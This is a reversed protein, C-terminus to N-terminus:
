FFQQCESSSNSMLMPSPKPLIAEFFLFPSFPEPLTLLPSSLTLSHKEFFDSIQPSWLTLASYSFGARFGGKRANQHTERSPLHLFGEM